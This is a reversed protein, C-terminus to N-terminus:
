NPIAKRKDNEAPHGLPKVCHLYLAAVLMQTNNGEDNYCLKRMRCFVEPDEMGMEILWHAYRPFISGGAM